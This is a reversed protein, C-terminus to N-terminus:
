DGGAVGTFCWKNDRCLNDEESTCINGKCAKIDAIETFHPADNGPFFLSITDRTHIQIYRVTFGAPRWFTYYSLLNPICWRHICWESKCEGGNQDVFHLKGPCGTLGGMCEGTGFDVDFGVGLTAYPSPYLRWLWTGRGPDGYSDPSGLGVFAIGCPKHVLSGPVIVNDQVYDDMNGDCRMIYDIKLNLQPYDRRGYTIDESLRYVYTHQGIINEYVLKLDIPVCGGPKIVIDDGNQDKGCIVTDGVSIPGNKVVIDDGNKDKLVIVTDGVAVGSNPAIAIEDGNKDKVTPVTDGISIPM